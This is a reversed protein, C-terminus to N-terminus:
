RIMAPKHHGTRDGRRAIMKATPNPGLPPPLPGHTRALIREQASQDLFKAVQIIPPATEPWHEFESAQLLLFKSEPGPQHELYNPSLLQRVPRRLFFALDPSWEHFTYVPWRRPVWQSIARGWPGESNRYNWEPVYYGWHVLKLAVAIVFLSVLGRRSNGTELASWALATVGIAIIGIVIGLPRYYPMALDWVYMGFLMAVLWSGFVLGLAVLFPGRAAAPLTRTWASELCAAAIVLIGTVAVLRAPESLGPIVTGGILAAIAVQLWGYLWQTDAEKWHQRLQRSLVLLAFPSWPLAAAMVGCFLWLAPQRTLPFTLAAAWVEASSSRITWISWAVIAVIPPFLLAFSFRATKRGIVVIALLIVVLPPWGGALFALAAFLGAVRDSGRTLLRNIAAITFLGMVFEAGILPSRDMVAFSGFWCFGFILGARLGRACYMSRAILWGAIIAAVAAPWRVAAPSPMGFAELRGLILSPIVQGPWLDPAWFGFVRGVPGIGESAALGLRGEAPDVDLNVAGLIVFYLALAVMALRAGAQYIAPRDWARAGDPGKSKTETRGDLAIVESDLSM